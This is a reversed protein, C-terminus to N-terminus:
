ASEAVNELKEATKPTLIPLPTATGATQRQADDGWLRQACQYRGVERRRSLFGDM